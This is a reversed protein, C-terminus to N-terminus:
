ATRDILGLLDDFGMGDEARYAEGDTFDQWRTIIVEAWRPELEVALCRRGTLEAGILVPGSGCFYDVVVDGEASSNRIAREALAVPKQMPHRYTSAPDRPESWVDRENHGANWVAPKDGVSGFLLFEHQRRYYMGMGFHEKDWVVTGHKRWRRVFAAELQAFHDDDIFCYVSAGEELVDELALFVDDLFTAYGETTQEDNAIKGFPNARDKDVRSVYNANYPPDTVCLQARDTGLAELARTVLAEDLCDGIALVHDGLVWIEGPRVVPVVPPEPTREPDGHQARKRLNREAEITLDSAMLAARLEDDLSTEALLADYKDQDREAMAGIPDFFALMDAAEQDTLDLATYPVLEGARIAEEIRMHGDIVLDTGHQIKVDDVWGKGKLVGVLAKRQREPHIRHNKPNLLFRNPDAWGREVIRSRWQDNFGEIQPKPAASM